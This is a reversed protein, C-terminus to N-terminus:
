LLRTSPRAPSAMGAGLAVVALGVVADYGLGIFIAAFIPIFPLWEEFMGVTLPVWDFLAMFIPIIIVSSNGKFIKMPSPYWVTM